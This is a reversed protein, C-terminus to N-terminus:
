FIYINADPSRYVSSSSAPKELLAAHCCIGQIASRYTEHSSVITKYLACHSSVIATAAKTTVPLHLAEVTTAVEAADNLM